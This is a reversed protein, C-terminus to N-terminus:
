RSESYKRWPDKYTNNQAASAVMTSDDGHEYGRSIARLNNIHSTRAEKDHINNVTRAEPMLMIM